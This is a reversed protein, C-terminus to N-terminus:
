IIFYFALKLPFVNKEPILIKFNVGFKVAPKVKKDYWFQVIACCSLQTVPSIQRTTQDKCISLVLLTLPDFVIV